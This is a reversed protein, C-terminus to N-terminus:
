YNATGIGRPMVMQAAIAEVEVFWDPSVLGSVFLTTVSPRVGDVFERRIEVLANMDSPRTLYFSMKVLDQPTMEASTLVAILNKFAQRCQGEFDPALAGDPAVGVQGSIYLTRSQPTTEVGHAYIGRYPEAVPFPDRRHPTLFTEPMDADRKNVEANTRKTLFLSLASLGAVQFLRRRHAM